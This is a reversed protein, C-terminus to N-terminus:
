LIELQSWVKHFGRGILEIDENTFDYMCTLIGLFSKEHLEEAVPCIGKEYGIGKRSHEYSWPFGKSGFAIKEQLVTSLCGSGGLIAYRGISAFIYM